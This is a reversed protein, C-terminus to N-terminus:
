DSVLESIREGFALQKAQFITQTTLSFDVLSAMYDNTMFFWGFQGYGVKQGNTMMYKIQFWNQSGRFGCFALQKAQLKEESYDIFYLWHFTLWVPWIKAMQWWINLRFGTRLGRVLHWSKSQFNKQTTLWSFNVLSAIYSAM